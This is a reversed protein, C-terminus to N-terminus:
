DTSKDKLEWQAFLIVEPDVVTYQGAELRKKASTIQANASAHALRLGDFTKQNLDVLLEILHASEENMLSARIVSQIEAMAFAKREASEALARAKAKEEIAKTDKIGLMVAQEGAVKATMDARWDYTSEICSIPTRTRELIYSFPRFQRGSTDYDIMSAVDKILACSAILGDVLADLTPADPLRGELEPIVM